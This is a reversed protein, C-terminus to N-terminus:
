PLVLALIILIAVAIGSLIGIRKLESVVNSYQAGSPITMRTPPVIPAPKPVAPAAPSVAVRQQAVTAAHRRKARASYKRGRRSKSPM